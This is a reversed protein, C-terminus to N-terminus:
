TIGMPTDFRAAAGSGDAFGAIGPSGALTSVTGDLAVKRILHNGTDAVYLIGTADQALGLPARFRAVAAPGDAFGAPAGGGAVETITSLDASLRKLRNLTLFTFSGAADQVIGSTSAAEATDRLGIVPLAALTATAPATVTLLAATSTAAGLGSCDLAARFQAGSDGVAAVLLYTPAAAGALNTFTLAGGVTAGRQWQVALTGSSCTAAVTFSAPTGAVVATNAPQATVTLVPAAPTVTLVAANSTASGAGNAVVARFTAGSDAVTAAAIAYTTANAGVIDTGNRQWQYALPADGTAAVNFSAAAGATVSVNAPQSTVMPAVAVPAGGGGGGGCGALVVLALQCVLSNCRSANM